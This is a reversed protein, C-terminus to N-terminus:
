DWISVIRFLRKVPEKLRLPELIQSSIWNTLPNNPYPTYDYFQKDREIDALLAGRNIEYEKWENFPWETRNLVHQFESENLPVDIQSTPWIRIGLQRVDGHKDPAQMFQKLINNDVFGTTESIQKNQKFTIADSELYFDEFICKWYFAYFASYVPSVLRSEFLARRDVCFKSRNYQMYSELFPYELLYPHIFRREEASGNGPLDFHIDFRIDYNVLRQMDTKHGYFCYDCIYFPVHIIAFPAWIREEFV